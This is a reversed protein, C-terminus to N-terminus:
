RARSQRSDFSRKSIIPQQKGNCLSRRLNLLERIVFDLVCACIVVGPRLCLLLLLFLFPM